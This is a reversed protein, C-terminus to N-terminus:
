PLAGRYYLNMPFPYPSYAFVAAAFCAAVTSRTLRRLLLAVGAAALCVIAAGALQFGGYLDTRVLWHLALALHYFGPAYFLTLPQGFGFFLDPVWRPFWVGQRLLPELAYLRFLHNEADQTAWVDLRPHLYPLWVPATLACALLPAPLSGLLVGTPRGAQLPRLFTM